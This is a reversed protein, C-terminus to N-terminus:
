VRGLQVQLANKKQLRDQNCIVMSDNKAIGGEEYLLRLKIGTVTYKLLAPPKVSYPCINHEPGGGTSCGCLTVKRPTWFHFAKKIESATSTIRAHSSYIKFENVLINLRTKKTYWLPFIDAM